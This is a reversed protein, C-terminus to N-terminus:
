DTTHTRQFDCPLIESRSLSDMFFANQITLLDYSSELSQTVVCLKPCDVAKDYLSQFMYYSAYEYRYYVVYIMRVWTRHHVYNDYIFYSWVVACWLWLSHMDYRVKIVFKAGYSYRDICNLWKLLAIINPKLITDFLERAGAATFHSANASEKAEADPCAVDVFKRWPANRTSLIKHYSYWNTNINPVICVSSSRTPRYLIWSLM